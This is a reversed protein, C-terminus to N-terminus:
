NTRESTAYSIRVRANENEFCIMDRERAHRFSKGGAFLYIGELVNTKGQANNGYFINVGPSFTFSVKEINRFNEFVASELYM